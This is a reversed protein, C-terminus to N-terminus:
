KLEKMSVPIITLGRVLNEYAYPDGYSDTAYIHDIGELHPGKSFIGHTVFLYVKKAGKSRLEKALGVFTGGGDCIDDVILVDSHDYCLKIDAHFGKLEGTQADRVKSCYITPWSGCLQEVRAMAGKDPCVITPHKLAQRVSWLAAVPLVNEAHRILRLAVESHVDLIRVRSFGASNIMRAIVELTFPQFVDLARDMRAGLLYRVDLNISSYGMGRLVSAALLVLVLSACDRLAVEITVERFDLDHTEVKIHPQGDSFTFTKFALDGAPTYIRM